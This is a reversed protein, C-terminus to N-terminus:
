RAFLFGRAAASRDTGLTMAVCDNLVYDGEPPRMLERPRVYIMCRARGIYDTFAQEDLIKALANAQMFLGLFRSKLAWPDLNNVFERLWHRAIDAARSTEPLLSRDWIGPSGFSFHPPFM